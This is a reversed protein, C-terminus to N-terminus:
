RTPSINIKSANVKLVANLNDVTPGAILQLLLTVKAALTWKM